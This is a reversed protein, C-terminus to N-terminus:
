DGTQKKARNIRVSGLPLLYIIPYHWNRIFAKEDKRGSLNNSAFCIFHAEKKKSIKPCEKLGKRV